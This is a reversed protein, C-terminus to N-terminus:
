SFGRTHTEAGDTRGFCVLYLTADNCGDVGILDNIDDDFFGGVPVAALGADVGALLANQAIHGAELLVFRYAREGYKVKSRAMAAVLVLSFSAQRAMSDLACGKALQEAFNGRRILGLGHDSPRYLYLGPEIGHVTFVLVYTDIPYLAGGSPSARLPWAVGEAEATPSTIGSALGLVHGLTSQNVTFDRFASKASRRASVTRAFSTQRAPPLTVSPDGRFSPLPLAVVARIQPSANFMAIRAYMRNDLRRGKSAEHYIESPSLLLEDTAAEADPPPAEIKTM